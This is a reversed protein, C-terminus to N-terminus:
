VKMVLMVSVLEMLVNGMEEVIMQVSEKLVIKVKGDMKAFAYDM